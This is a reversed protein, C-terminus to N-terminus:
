WTAGPLARAVSQMTAVLDTLEPSPSRHDRARGVSSLQGARLGASELVRGLDSIVTSQVTSPPVAVGPLRRETEGDVFLEGLLPWLRDVARQARDQSESTGDGLRIVWDAAHEAHYRLEKVAKGAIAAIVPDIATDLARCIALRWVSFLLVRTMLEAFDRDDVEALRVHRFAAPERDYAFADDTRGSGDAAGARALLMRAQGLLDLAINAVATEEELEPLRTIWLQLRQSMILADDGLMLCYDALAASDLAAPVTVDVGALPDAFGTGFAWRADDTAETLGVYPSDDNADM